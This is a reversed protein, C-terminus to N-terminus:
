IPNNVVFTKKVPKASVRDNDLFQEKMITRAQYLDRESPKGFKKELKRALQERSCKWTDKVTNELLSDIMQSRAIASRVDRLVKQSRQLDRKVSGSMFSTENQDNKM